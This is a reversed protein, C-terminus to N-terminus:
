LSEKQYRRHLFQFNSIELLKKSLYKLKKDLYMHSKGFHYIHVM